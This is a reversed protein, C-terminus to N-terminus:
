FADLNVDLRAEARDGNTPCFDLDAGSPLQHRGGLTVPNFGPGSGTDGGLAAPTMKSGTTERGRAMTDGIEAAAERVPPDKGADGRVCLLRHLRKM